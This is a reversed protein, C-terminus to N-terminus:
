KEEEYVVEECGTASSGWPPFPLDWHLRGTCPPEWPTELPPRTLPPWLSFLDEQLGGPSVLPSSALLAACLVGKCVEGSVGTTVTPRSWIYGRWYCTGSPVTWNGGPKEERYVRKWLILMSSASRAQSGDCADDYAGMEWWPWLGGWSDLLIASIGWCSSGLGPM